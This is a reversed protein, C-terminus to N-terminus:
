GTELRRYQSTSMLTLSLLGFAGHAYMKINESKLTIVFLWFTADTELGILGKAGTIMM